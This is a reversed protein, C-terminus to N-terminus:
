KGLSIGGSLNPDSSTSADVKVLSPAETLASHRYLKDGSLLNTADYFMVHAVDVADDVYGRYTPCNQRDVWATTLSLRLQNIHTTQPEDKYFQELAQAALISATEVNEASVYILYSGKLNSGKFTYINPSEPNPM